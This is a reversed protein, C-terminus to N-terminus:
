GALDKKGRSDGVKSREEQVDGDIRKLQKEQGNSSHASSDSDSQGLFEKKLLQETQELDGFFSNDNFQQSDFLSSHFTYM